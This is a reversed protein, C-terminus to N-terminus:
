YAQRRKMRRKNRRKNPTLYVTEGIQAQTYKHNTKISLYTKKTSGLIDNIKGIPQKKQNTVQSGIKPTIKTPVILKNTSTKHSITGLKKPKKPKKSM